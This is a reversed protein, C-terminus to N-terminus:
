FVTALHKVNNAAIGGINGQQQLYNQPHNMYSLM